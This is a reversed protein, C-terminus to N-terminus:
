FTGMSYTFGSGDFYDVIKLLFCSQDSVFEKEILAKFRWKSTYFGVGSLEKTIRKHV